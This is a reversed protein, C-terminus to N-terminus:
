QQLAAQIATAAQAANLSNLVQIWRSRGAYPATVGVAYVDTITTGPIYREMAITRGQATPDLAAAVAAETYAM